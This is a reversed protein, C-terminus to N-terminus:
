QGLKDRERPQNKFSIWEEKEQEALSNKAQMLKEKSKRHRRAGKKRDSRKSM